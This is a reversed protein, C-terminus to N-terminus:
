MEGDQHFSHCPGEPRSLAQPCLVEPHGLSSSDLCYPLSLPRARVAAQTRARREADGTRGGVANSDLAKFLSEALQHQQETYLTHFASLHTQLQILLGPVKRLPVCYISAVSAEVLSRLFLYDM